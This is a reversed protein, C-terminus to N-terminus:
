TPHLLPFNTSNTGGLLLSTGTPDIMMVHQFPIFGDLWTEFLVKSLDASYKRVRPPGVGGTVQVQPNGALRRRVNRAHDALIRVAILRTVMDGIEISIRALRGLRLLPHM